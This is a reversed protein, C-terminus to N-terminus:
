RDCYCEDDDVEVHDVVMAKAHELAGITELQSLGSEYVADVKGDKIAVIIVDDIKGLSDDTLAESLVDRVSM